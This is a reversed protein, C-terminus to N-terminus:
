GCGLISPLKTALFENIRAGAMPQFRDDIGHLKFASLCRLRDTAAPWSNRDLEGSRDNCTSTWNPCEDIGSFRFRDSLQAIGNKEASPTKLLSVSGAIDQNLKTSIPKCGLIIRINGLLRATLKGVNMQQFGRLDLIQGKSCHCM